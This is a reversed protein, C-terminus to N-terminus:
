KESVILSVRGDFDTVAVERGSIPTVTNLLAAGVRHRWKIVGTAADLALLLGNKTGYFVVGDKEALQASSIDQGIGAEIEWLTEQGDADPAVAAIVDDTTRVFVRRGDESIGISERVSLNDTGWIERGTGLEIATMMRDPAVIFVKGAAAVPWCAAPAYYPSPQEGQWTWALRGTKADLAYLRGDWAGFIVLGGAILPKTEVFGEIGPHSWVPDGSALSIARFIHDSSGIYM